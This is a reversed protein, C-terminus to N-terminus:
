ELDFPTVTKNSFFYTMGGNEAKYWRLSIGRNTFEPSLAGYIQEVTVLNPDRIVDTSVVNNGDCAIQVRFLLGPDVFSPIESNELQKLQLTCADARSLWGFYSKMDRKISSVDSTFSAFSSQAFALVALSAALKMKM